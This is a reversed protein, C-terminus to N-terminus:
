ISGTRGGDVPISAGSIYGAAPSALFAVLAGVEEPESLRRLPIEQKMEEIVEAPTKGTRAARSQIVAQLRPTITSGPLVNNVTIGSPGLELSITKAWSAMAGRVTNSVGLGAIPIRVSTSIVNIIRGFGVAKMGPAVLQTLTQAAGLHSQFAAAFANFDSELATGPPPGGTNNVLIHFTTTQIAASVRAALTATDSQDAIIYDHLRGGADALQNLAVRLKEESRALLTIRAGLKSLEIASALGIGGTSGCVLANKDHLNLNMSILDHISADGPLYVLKPM